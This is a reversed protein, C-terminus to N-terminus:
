DPEGASDGGWDFGFADFVESNQILHINGDEIKYVNSDNELHVLINDPYLSLTDNDIARIEGEENGKYSLFVEMSRKRKLGSETIYYISEQGPVRANFKVPLGAPQFARRQNGGAVQASFWGRREIAVTYLIDPSFGVLPVFRLERYEELWVLEGEVLPHISFSKMADQESIPLRFNVTVIDGLAPTNTYSIRPAIPSVSRFFIAVVAVAIFLLLVIKKM